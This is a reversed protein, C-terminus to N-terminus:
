KQLLGVTVLKVVCVLQPIVSKVVAVYTNEGVATYGAVWEFPKKLSGRPFIPILKGTDLIIVDQEAYKKAFDSIEGIIEYGGGPYLEDIEQKSCYAIKSHSHRETMHLSNNTKPYVKYAM